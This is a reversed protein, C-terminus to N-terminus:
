QRADGVTIRLRDRKRWRVVFEAENRARRERHAEYEDHIRIRAPVGRGVDGALYALRCYAQRAGDNGCRQNYDGEVHREVGDEKVRRRDRRHGPLEIDRQDCALMNETVEASADDAREDADPEDRRDAGHGPYTWADRHRHAEIVRNSAGNDRM